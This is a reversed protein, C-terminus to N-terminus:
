FADSRAQEDGFWCPAQWNCTSCWPGSNKEYIRNTLNEATSGLKERWREADDDNLFDTTGVELALREIRTGVRQFDWEPHRYRERLLAWHNLAVRAPSLSQPDKATTFEVAVLANGVGVVVDPRVRIAFKGPRRVFLDTQPQLLVNVESWDLGDDSAPFRCQWGRVMQITSLRLEALRDIISLDLPRRTVLADFQAGLDIDFGHGDSYNVLQREVLEGALIGRKLAFLNEPTNQWGTAKMFRVRETCPEETPFAKEILGQALIPEPRVAPAPRETTTTNVSM